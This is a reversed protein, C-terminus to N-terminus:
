ERKHSQVVLLKEVGNCVGVKGDIFHFVHSFKNHFVPTEVEEAVAAEKNEEIPVPEEVAEASFDRTLMMTLPTMQKNVFQRGLMQMPKSLLFASRIM